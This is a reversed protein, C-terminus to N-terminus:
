GCHITMIIDVFPIYMAMTIINVNNYSSYKRDSIPYKMIDSYSTHIIDIM